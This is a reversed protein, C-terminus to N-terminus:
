RSYREKTRANRSVRRAKRIGEVNCFRRRSAWLPSPSSSSPM